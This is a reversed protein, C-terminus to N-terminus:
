QDAIINLEKLQARLKEIEEILQHVPEQNKEDQSKVEVPDEQPSERRALAVSQAVGAGFCPTNFFLQAAVGFYLLYACIASTSKM